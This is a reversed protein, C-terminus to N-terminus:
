KKSNYEERNVWKPIINDLNELLNELTKRQLDTEFVKTEFNESM